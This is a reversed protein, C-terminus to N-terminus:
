RNKMEPTPNVPLIQYVTTRPTSLCCGCSQPSQFLILHTVNKKPGHYQRNQCGPTECRRRQPLIGIRQLCPNVQEQLPPIVPSDLSRNLLLDFREKGPLISVSAKARLTALRARLRGLLQVVVRGAWRIDLVLVDRLLLTHLRGPLGVCVVLLSENLIVLLGLPM